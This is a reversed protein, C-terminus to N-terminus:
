YKSTIYDLKRISGSTSFLIGVFIIIHKFPCSERMVLRLHCISLVMGSLLYMSFPTGTASGTGDVEWTAAAKLDLYCLQNELFLSFQLLLSSLIMYVPGFSGVAYLLCNDISILNGHNCFDIGPM